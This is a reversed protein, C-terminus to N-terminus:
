SKLYERSFLKNSQYSGYRQTKVIICYNLWDIFVVHMPILILFVAVHKSENLWWWALYLVCYQYLWHTCVKHSGM